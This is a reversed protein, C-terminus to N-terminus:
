GDLQVGTASTETSDEDDDGCAAIALALVLAALLAFLGKYRANSSM